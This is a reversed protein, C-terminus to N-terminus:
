FLFLSLSLGYPFPFVIFSSCSLLLKSWYNFISFTVRFCLLCQFANIDVNMNIILLQLFCPHLLLSTSVIHYPKVKEDTSEVFAQLVVSVYLDGWLVGVLQERLKAPRSINLYPSVLTVVDPLAEATFHSAIYPRPHPLKLAVEKEQPPSKTLFVDPYDKIPLPNTNGRPIIILQYHSIPGNQDSAAHLKFSHLTKDESPNIPKPKLPPPAASVSGYILTPYPSLRLCPSVRQVCKGDIQTDIQRDLCRGTCANIHGQM